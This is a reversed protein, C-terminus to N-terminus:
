GEGRGRSGRERESKGEMEVIEGMIEMKGGNVDM